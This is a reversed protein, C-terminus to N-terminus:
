GFEFQGAHLLRGNADAITLRPPPQWKGNKVCAPYYKEGAAGTLEPLILLRPQALQSKITLSLPQGPPVSAALLADSDQGPLYQLRWLDGQADTITLFRNPASPTAPSDSLLASVTIAILLVGFVAATVLLRAKPSADSLTEKLNFFAEKWKLITYRDVLGM